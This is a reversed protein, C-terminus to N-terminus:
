NDVCERDLADVLPHDSEGHVVQSFRNISAAEWSTAREGPTYASLSDMLLRTWIMMTIRNMVLKFMGMVVPRPM